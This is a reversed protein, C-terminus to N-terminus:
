SVKVEALQRAMDACELACRDEDSAIGGSDFHATDFGFWWSGDRKGLDGSYTVGGHVRVITDPANDDDLGSGGYAVGHFPHADPVRM